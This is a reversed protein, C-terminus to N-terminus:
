GLKGLLDLMESPIPEGVTKDYISRLANGIEGPESRRKRKKGPRASTDGDVNSDAKRRRDRDDEFSLLTVGRPPAAGAADSNHRSACSVIPQRVCHFLGWRHLRM